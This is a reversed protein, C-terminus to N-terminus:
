KSITEVEIRDQLIDTLHASRGLYAGMRFAIAPHRQQGQELLTPLDGAVHKGTHLFYPVALIREAGQAACSDIAEPISPANCELFGVEMIPFAGQAKIAEVVLFMDANASPHPSGHVLVLLADHSSLEQPATVSLLEEKPLPAASRIGPCDPTGYLPCSPDARCYAAARRLDERWASPP